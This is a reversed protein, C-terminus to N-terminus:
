QADYGDSLREMTAGNAQDVGRLSPVFVLTRLLIKFDLLLSQQQVYFVDLDLRQNWSLLNRGGVQALGTLGPRVDHRVSHHSSYVDLYEMLLPRPGVFSMDGRVVNWLSPLEDISTKRLVAGLDSIRGSEDGDAAIASGSMTRFKVLAFPKEGVGPRVQRFLIPRGDLFLVLVGVTVMLPSLLLFLILAFVLDLVRKVKSYVVPAKDHSLFLRFLV